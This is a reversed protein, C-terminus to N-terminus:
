PPAAWPRAAPRRRPTSRAGSRRRRAQCAPVSCYRARRSAPRADSRLFYDVAGLHIANVANKMTEVNSIVIFPISRENLKAIAEVAEDDLEAEPELVVLDPPTDWDLESAQDLRMIDHIKLRRAFYRETEEDRGVLAIRKPQM